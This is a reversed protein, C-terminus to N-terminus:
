TVASAGKTSLSFTPQRRQAATSMPKAPTRSASLGDVAASVAGASTAGEPLRSEAIDGTMVGTRRLVAFSTSTDLWTAVVATNPRMAAGNPQTVGGGPSKARITSNPTSAIPPSGERLMDSLRAGAETTTGYWYVVITHPTTSPNSIKPSSGRTWTSAPATIMMAAPSNINKRSCRPM